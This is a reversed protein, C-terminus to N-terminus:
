HILCTLKYVNTDTETLNGVCQWGSSSYKALCWDKSDFQTSRICRVTLVLPITFQREVSVMVTTATRNYAKHTMIRFAGAVFMQSYSLTSAKLTSRLFSTAVPYIDLLNELHLPLLGSPITLEMYIQKNDAIIPFSHDYYPTITITILSTLTHVPSSLCGIIFSPLSFTGGGTCSLVCRDLYNTTGDLDSQLIPICHGAPCM